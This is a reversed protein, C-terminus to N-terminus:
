YNKLINKIEQYNIKGDTVRHSIENRIRTYHSEKVKNNRPSPILEVGFSGKLYEDFDKQLTKKKDKAETMSFLLNCAVMFKDVVNEMNMIARFSSLLHQSASCAGRSVCECVRDDHIKVSIKSDANARAMAPKASVRIINGDIVSVSPTSLEDIPCMLRVSLIDVLSEAKQSIAGIKNGLLHENIDHTEISFRLIEDKAIMTAKKIVIGDFHHLISIEDFEVGRIKAEYSVSCLVM